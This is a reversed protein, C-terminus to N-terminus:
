GNVEFDPTLIDENREWKLIGTHSHTFATITPTSNFDEAERLTSQALV